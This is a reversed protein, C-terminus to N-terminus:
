EDKNGFFLVVVLLFGYILFEVVKKLIPNQIGAITSSIFAGIAKSAVGRKKKIELSNFSHVIKTEMYSNVKVEGKLPSLGLLLMWILILFKYRRM